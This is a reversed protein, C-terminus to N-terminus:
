FIINTTLINVRLELVALHTFLKFFLQAINDMVLVFIKAKIILYWFQRDVLIFLKVKLGWRFLYRKMEEYVALMVFCGAAVAANNCLACEDSEIDHDGNPLAFM